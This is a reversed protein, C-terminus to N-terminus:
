KQNIGLNKPTNSNQQHGDLLEASDFNLADFFPSFGSSNSTQYHHHNELYVGLDKELEHTDPSQQPSQQAVYNEQYANFFDEIIKMNGMLERTCKSIEDYKLENKITKKHLNSISSDSLKKIAEDYFLVIKKMEVIAIEMSDFEEGKNKKSLKNLCLEIQDCKGDIKKMEKLMERQNEMIKELQPDM